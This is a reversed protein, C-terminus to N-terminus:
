FSSLFQFYRFYGITEFSDIDIIYIPSIYRALGAVLLRVVGTFAIIISASPHLSEVIELGCFRSLMLVSSTVSIM